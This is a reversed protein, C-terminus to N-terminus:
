RENNNNPNPNSSAPTLLPRNNTTTSTPPFATRSPTSPNSSTPIPYIPDNRDRRSGGTRNPRIVGGVEGESSGSDDYPAETVICTVESNQKLGADRAPMTDDRLTKGKYRLKLRRMDSVDLLDAAYQRILGIKVLGECISFPTFDLKEIQNRYKVFIIDPHIAGTYTGQGRRTNNWAEAPPDLADESTMYTYDNDTIIPPSHNPSTSYPSTHRGGGWSWRSMSLGILFFSIAIGIIVEPRPTQFYRQLFVPILQTWNTQNSSPPPTLPLLNQLQTPLHSRLSELTQFLSTSFTSSAM